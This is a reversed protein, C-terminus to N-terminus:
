LQMRGIRVAARCIPEAIEVLVGKPSKSDQMIKFYRELIYPNVCVQDIKSFRKDWTFRLYECQECHKM